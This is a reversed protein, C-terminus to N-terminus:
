AKDGDRNRSLHALVIDEISAPEAVFGEPPEPEGVIRLLSTSEPGVFHWHTSQLDDIEGDLILQGKGLLLLNDAVGVIEAVIHTSLILSMGTDAAATLLESTVEKRVLPDLNALPEDLLLLDPRAGIAMALAVQTRQGGSLRGCHVKPNVRFRKLWDEARQQDWELNLHRALKLMETATFREYLPKDQSVFAVRGDVEATGADPALLGSLVTLLTTKGSGNAGVLATVQGPRLEFTCDRLAWTDGYRKGLGAVRLVQKNEVTVSV